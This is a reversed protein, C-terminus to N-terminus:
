KNKLNIVLLEHAKKIINDRRKLQNELSKIKLHMDWVKNQLEKTSM